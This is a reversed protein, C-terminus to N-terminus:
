ENYKSTKNKKFTNYKTYTRTNRTPRSGCLIPLNKLTDIYITYYKFLKSDDIVKKRGLETLVCYQLNLAGSVERFQETCRHDCQIM